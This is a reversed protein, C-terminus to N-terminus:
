LHMSPEELRYVDLSGGYYGNHIVRMEITCIGRDTKIRHGWVETVTYDNNVDNDALPLSLDEVELIHANTLVESGDIHCIFCQACCSGFPELQFAGAGDARNLFLNAGDWRADAIKRNVLYNLGDYERIRTDRM